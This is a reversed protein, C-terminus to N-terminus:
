ERVLVFPAWFYPHRLRLRPSRIMELKAERLAAAYGRSLNQYFTKMFVASAFDEVEWYSVVVNRCGAYIFARVFGEVGEGM